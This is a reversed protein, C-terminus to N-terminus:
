VAYSIAVHSSNLRASKRDGREVSSDLNNANWEIILFGQNLCHIFIYCSYDNFPDLANASHFFGSSFKQFLDLILAFLMTGSKDEIFDLASVSTGTFKKCMLIM